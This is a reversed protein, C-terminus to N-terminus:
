VRSDPDENAHTTISFYEYNSYARPWLSRQYRRLYELIILERIDSFSRLHRRIEWVIVTNQKFIIRNPDINNTSHFSVIQFNTGLKSNSWVQMSKIGYRAEQKEARVAPLSINISRSQVCYGNWHLEYQAWAANTGNRIAGGIEWWM